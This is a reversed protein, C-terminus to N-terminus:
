HTHAIRYIQNAGDDSVLLSGDALVATAVPRGWVDGNNVIFGTLFDEYEGTPIGNRMRVRVVKYGTLMSRNWSGHFAVFADGVYERPFAAAGATATYFTLHLAASHAQYLLDPVIVKGALDPREGRLRPDENPGIYYWPWGYFGGEEVHTSYDPVLQDGLLDRENTTCWLDQTQPHIALSVCNRLGAAFIRGQKPNDLEYVLVAARNTEDGWAAGLGHQADWAQAEQVTKKEMREAVNSLSGVSVFMRKRDPSFVLDRTFHGAGVPLGEVVVEPEARTQRDGTKYPFRVVRTSEAIYVWQPEKATPYFEIGFPLNLGKAFTSVTASSGDPAPRLVSVRGASTATVLVDGNPAVIMRRPAEVDRAFVSVAFGQPVSLTAAQPKAIVKPLNTVIENAAPPPPLPLAVSHIRGPKDNRWDEEGQSAMPTVTEQGNLAAAADSEIYAAAFASTGAATLVLLGVINVNRLDTELFM